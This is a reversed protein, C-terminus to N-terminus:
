TDLEAIVQNSLKCYIPLYGSHEETAKVVLITGTLSLLSRPGGSAATIFFM